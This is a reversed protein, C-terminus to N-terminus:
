RTGAVGAVGRLAVGGHRRACRARGSLLSGPRGSSEPADPGRSHSLQSAPDVIVYPAPPLQGRSYAQLPLYPVPNVVEPIPANSRRLRAPVVQGMSNLHGFCYGQRLARRIVQPLAAEVAPGTASDIAGDHM